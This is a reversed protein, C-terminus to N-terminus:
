LVLQQQKQEAFRIALQMFKKPSKIGPWNRRVGNDFVLLLLLDAYSCTDKDTRPLQHGTL